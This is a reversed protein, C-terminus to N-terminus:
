SNNSSRAVLMINKGFFRRTLPEITKSVPFIIRDFVWVQWKRLETKKSLFKYLMAVAWGLPDVYKASVVTLEAKEVSSLLSRMTYRRWHGVARDFESYLAPSAPVYILIHGSAKIKEALKALTDSDEEIHELVNILYILDFNSELDSIEAVTRVINSSAFEELLRVDPELATIRKVHAALIYTFIGTGAGFDLVDSTKDCHRLIEDLIYKNYNKASALSELVQVGTYHQSSM